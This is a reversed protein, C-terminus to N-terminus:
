EKGPRIVGAAEHSDRTKQLGAQGLDKVAKAPEPTVPAQEAESTTTKKAATM